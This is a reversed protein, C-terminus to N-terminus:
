IEVNMIDCIYEARRKATHYKLFREHGNRAIEQLREKSELAWSLQECFDRRSGADFYMIDKRNTFGNPIIQGTMESFLATGTALIEWFRLTDMGVGRVSGGLWSKSINKRMESKTVHLKVVNGKSDINGTTSTWRIKYKGKNLKTFSEVHEQCIKRKRHNRERAIYYCDWDKEESDYNNLPPNDQFVSFAFPLPYVLGKKYRESYGKKLERRFYFYERNLFSLLDSYKSTDSHNESIDYYAVKPINSLIYEYEKPQFIKPLRHDCFVVEFEGNKVMSIIQDFIWNRKGGDKKNYFEDHYVYLSRGSDPNPPNVEINEPYNIVNERGFLQVFGDYIKTISNDNATSGFFLIKGNKRIM